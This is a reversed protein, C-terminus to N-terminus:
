KLVTQKELRTIRKEHRLLTHADKDVARAIPRIEALLEEKLEVLDDKTAYKTKLDHRIESFQETLNGFQDSLTIVAQLIIENSVQKKHLSGTIKKMDLPYCKRRM